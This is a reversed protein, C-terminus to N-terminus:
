RGLRWATFVLGALAVDSLLMLGIAYDGNVAWASSVRSSLGGVPHAPVLDARQRDEVALPQDPDDGLAVQGLRPRPPPGVALEGLGGM